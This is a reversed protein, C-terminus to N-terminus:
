VAFTSSRQKRRFARNIANADSKAGNKASSPTRIGGPSGMGSAKDLVRLLSHIIRSAYEVFNLSYNLRM